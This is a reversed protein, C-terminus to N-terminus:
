CLKMHHLPLDKVMNLFAGQVDLFIGAMVLGKRWADKIRSSILLMMDLTNHGPRCGFQFAPLLNQKECLFSVYCLALTDFGKGLTNLLGVSHYAKVVGYDTKCLKQLVM